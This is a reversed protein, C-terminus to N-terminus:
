LYQGYHNRCVISTSFTAEVLIYVVNVNITFILYFAHLFYVDDSFNM